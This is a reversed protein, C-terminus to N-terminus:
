RTSRWWPSSTIMFGRRVSWGSPTASVVAVPTIKGEFGRSRAAEGSLFLPNTAGILGVICEIESGSIFRTRTVFKNGIEFDEYFYEKLSSRQVNKM